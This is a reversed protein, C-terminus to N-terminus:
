APTSETPMSEVYATVSGADIWFRRSTDDKYRKTLEGANALEYVTKTSMSLREAVEDVTLLLKDAM